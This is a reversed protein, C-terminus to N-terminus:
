APLSARSQFAHTVVGDGIYVRRPFDGLEPAQALELVVLLSAHDWSRKLSDTVLGRDLAPACVAYRVTSLGEETM